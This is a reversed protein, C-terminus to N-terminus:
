KAGKLEATKIVSSIRVGNFKHEISNKFSWADFWNDCHKIITYHTQDSSVRVIFRKRNTEITTTLKIM